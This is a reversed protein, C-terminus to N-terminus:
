FTQSGPYLTYQKRRVGLIGKKVLSAMMRSVTERSCGCANAIEIQTPGQEIVVHDKMRIGMREAVDLLYKLVRSEVNLFALWKIREDAARLRGAMVKLINIAISPNEMLLKMFDNRRIVVLDCAEMAYINASRPLDDILSLEGFFGNREITDLVYERGEEDNLSVKVKGSLVIFLANGEEGEQFIIQGRSYAHVYLIRSIAELENEKLDSFLHVSRLNDTYKKM